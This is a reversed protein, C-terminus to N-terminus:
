PQEHRPGCAQHPTLGQCNIGPNMGLNMAQNMSKTFFSVVNGLCFPLVLESGDEDCEAHCGRIKSKAEFVGAGSLMLGDFDERTWKTSYEVLVWLFILAVV